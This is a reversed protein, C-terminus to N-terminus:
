VSLKNRIRRRKILIAVIFLHVTMVAHIFGVIIFVKTFSQTVDFLYGTFTGACTAGLGGMFSSLAIAMNVNRDDFVAEKFLTASIADEIFFSFGQVFALTARVEYVSSTFDLLFSITCIVGIAIYVVFVNIGKYVLIIFMTRSIIGGIGGITSLFIAKSPPIGIHEAHPVLFLMWAYM